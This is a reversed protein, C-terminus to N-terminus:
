KPAPKVNRTKWSRAWGEILSAYLDATTKRALM